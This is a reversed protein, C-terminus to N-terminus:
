LMAFVSLNGRNVQRRQPCTQYGLFGSFGSRQPFHLDGYQSTGLRHFSGADSTGVRQFNFGIRALGFFRMALLSLYHSTLIFFITNRKYLELSFGALFTCVTFTLKSSILANLKHCVTNNPGYENAM